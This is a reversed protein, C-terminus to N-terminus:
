GLTTTNISWGGACPLVACVNISDQNNKLYFSQYPGKTSGKDDSIGNNTIITTLSILLLLIILVVFFIRNKDKLKYTM